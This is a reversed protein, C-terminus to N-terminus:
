QISRQSNWSCASRHSIRRYGPGSSGTWSGATSICASFGSSCTDSSRQQM